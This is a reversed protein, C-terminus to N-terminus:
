WDVARRRVPRAAKGHGDEDVVQVNEASRASRGPASTSTATRGRRRGGDRRVRRDGRRRVTAAFADVVEPSGENGFAVRLPNDADDPREPTSLMYALPKGTYNFYTSGYHRVDDLWRSASFRRALGVSAGYVISPAWGVMLSNSHFLPMCVYGIDDPGLDMIIGMRNGTVLFRRQSCIVAKPADSTGSTFILGWLQDPGPEVGPDDSGVSALAGDLDDGVTVPPAEVGDEPFRASVLVPPLREAFPELLGAHRPETLVLGCHTHELDRLLHEGRRTHNLGSSRRVRSPPVM